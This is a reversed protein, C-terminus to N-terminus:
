HKEMMTPTPGQSGFISNNAKNSSTLQDNNPTRARKQQLALVKRNSTSSHESTVMELGSGAEKNYIFPTTTGSTGGGVRNKCMTCENSSSRGGGISSMAAIQNQMNNATVKRTKSTSSCNSKFSGREHSGGGGKGIESSAMFCSHCKNGQSSNDLNNAVKNQRLM